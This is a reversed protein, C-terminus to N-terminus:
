SKNQEFFEVIGAYTKVPFNFYYVSISRINGVPIRMSDRGSFRITITDADSNLYVGQPNPFTLVGYTWEVSIAKARRGRVLSMYGYPRTSIQYFSM